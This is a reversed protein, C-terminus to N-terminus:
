RGHGVGLTVAEGPGIQSGPTPSQWVVVGLLGADRGSLNYRVGARELAAVAQRTHAGVWNPALYSHPLNGLSMLIQVPRDEPIPADPAPDTALIRNNPVDDSYVRAVNGPELGLRGLTLQAGRYDQGRLPPITAKEEGLSLVLEVIKGRRTLVGAPPNQSLVAGRPVSPDFQETVTRVLLGYKAATHEAQAAPMYALDPVRVNQGIHVLRPMVVWDFIMVGSTFAALSVVAWLIPRPVRSVVDRFNM